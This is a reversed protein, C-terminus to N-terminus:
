QVVVYYLISYEYQVTATSYQLQVEIYYQVTSYQITYMYQVTTAPHSCCVCREFTEPVTWVHSETDLNGDFDLALTEFDTIIKDFYERRSFVHVFKLGLVPWM